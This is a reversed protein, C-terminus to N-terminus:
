ACRGWNQSLRHLADINACVKTPEVRNLAIQSSSKTWHRRKQMAHSASASDQGHRLANGSSWGIRGFHCCMVVSEVGSMPQAGHLAVTSLSRAPTGPHAVARGAVLDAVSRGMDAGRGFGQGSKGTAITLGVIPAHDVILMVGPLSDIVGGGAVVVAARPPQPLALRVPADESIPFSM